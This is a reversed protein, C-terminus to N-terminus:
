DDKNMKVFEVALHVFYSFAGKKKMQSEIYGLLEERKALYLHLLDMEHGVDFDAVQLAGDFANQVYPLQNIGVIESDQEPSAGAKLKERNHTKRHRTLNYKKQFLRGCVPCTYM